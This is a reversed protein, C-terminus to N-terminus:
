PAAGFDLTLPAPAATWTLTAATPASPGALFPLVGTVSEGPEVVRDGWLTRIVHGIAMAQDLMMAENRVAVTPWREKFFALELPQRRLHGPEARLDWDGARVRYPLDGDNRVTLAVLWTQRTYPVVFRSVRGILDYGTILPRAPGIWCAEVTLHGVHATAVTDSDGATEPMGMAVPATTVAADSGPLTDATTAIRAPVDSPSAQRSVLRGTGSDQARLFQERTPGCACLAVALPGILWPRLRTLSPLRTPVPSIRM